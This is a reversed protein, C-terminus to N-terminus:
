RYATVVYQYPLTKLDSEVTEFGAARLEEVVVGHALKHSARPGVPLDHKFYDVVVLRGGTKLGARLRDFYEVREEIHHYTNVTLVIDAEAPELEPSDYPLKRLTMGADGDIGAKAMRERIHELFDDNVDGCIVNAGAAHLRFSFYGSGSGLDMVTKGELDGLLALVAEPKQWADRESREFHSILDDTSNRHMYENASGHHKSAGGDDALATCALAVILGHALWTPKAAMM